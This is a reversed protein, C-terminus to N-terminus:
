KYADGRSGIKFILITNEGITKFLIRFKGVRIRYIDKVGIIPKLDVPLEEALKLLALNILIKYNSPLKSYYKAAKRSFEIEFKAM